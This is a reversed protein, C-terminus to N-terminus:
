PDNTALAVAQATEIAMELTSKLEEAADGDIGGKAQAVPVTQLGLQVYLPLLSPAQKRLTELHWRVTEIDGRAIPGTLANPLGLRQINRVTGQLLPVLASVAEERSFGFAQWLDSAAQMLAVTYNSVLVAAAHYLAKDEPRIRICNGGLAWAMKQLLVLLKGKAEIAFTTGPLNELAEEANAFSQLPHFSGVLAGQSAAAALIYVSHAGSTHVVMQGARWRVTDAVSAIASDPTTIFVLEAVDAIPQADVYATCGPVQDALRQASTYRRSAVAVVPYGVAALSVALATGVVGAGIFGISPGNNVRATGKRVCSFVREADRGFPCRADGEVVRHGDRDDGIWATKAKNIYM